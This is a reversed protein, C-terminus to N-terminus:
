PEGKRRGAMRNDGNAPSFAKRMKAAHPLVGHQTVPTRLCSYYFLARRKKRLEGCPLACFYATRLM